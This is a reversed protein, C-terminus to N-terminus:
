SVRLDNHVKTVGYIRGAEKELSRVEWRQNVRGTLTVQGNDVKVNVQNKISPFHDDIAEKVQSMLATDSIPSNTPLEVQLDDLVDRVGAQIGAAYEAALQERHYIVNGSLRVVGDKVEVKINEPITISSFVKLENDIGYEIEQDPVYDTLVKLENDVSSVGAVSELLRDLNMKDWYRTVEGQLTVAGADSVAVKFSTEPYYNYLTEKVLSQLSPTGGMAFVTQGIFLLATILGALLNFKRSDGYM